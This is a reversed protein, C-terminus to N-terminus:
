MVSLGSTGTNDSLVLMTSTWIDMGYSGGAGFCDSSRAAMDDTYPRLRDATVDSCESTTIMNGTNYMDDGGNSIQGQAVDNATLTISHPSFPACFTWRLLEVPTTCSM